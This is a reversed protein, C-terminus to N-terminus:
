SVMGRTRPPQGWPNGGLDRASKDPTYLKVNVKMYFMYTTNHASASRKANKCWSVGDHIIDGVSAGHQCNIDQSAQGSRVQGSGPFSVGRPARAHNITISDAPIM